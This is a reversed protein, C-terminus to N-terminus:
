YAKLVKLLIDRLLNSRISMIAVYFVICCAMRQIYCPKLDFSPYYSARLLAMLQIEPKKTDSSSLITLKAMFSPNRGKARSVRVMPVSKFLYSISHAKDLMVPPTFLSCISMTMFSSRSMYLTIDNKLLLLKVKFPSAAQVM